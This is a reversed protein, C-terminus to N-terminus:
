EEGPAVMRFLLLRYRDEGTPAELVVALHRKSVAVQDVKIVGEVGPFLTPIKLYPEGSADCVHLSEAMLFTTSRDDYDSVEVLLAEQGPVLHYDFEARKEPDFVPLLLRRDTKLSYVIWGNGARVLVRETSPDFYYKSVHHYYDRNDVLSIERRFDEGVAFLGIVDPAGNDRHLYKGPEVPRGQGDEFHVASLGECVSRDPESYGPPEITGSLVAKPESRTPKHSATAIRGDDEWRAYPYSLRTQRVAEDIAGVSFLTSYDESWHMVLVREETPSFSINKYPKDIAAEHILRYSVAGDGADLAEPMGLAVVLIVSAIRTVM